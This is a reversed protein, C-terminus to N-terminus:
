MLLLIYSNTPVIESRLEVRRTEVKNAITLLYYIVSSAVVRSYVLITVSRNTATKM